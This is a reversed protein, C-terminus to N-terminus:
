KPRLVIQFRRRGYTNTDTKDINFHYNGTHLELSDKLLNDRVWIQITKPIGYFKQARIFYAGSAIATVYTKVVMGPRYPVKDGSLMFGDNSLFSFHVPPNSELYLADEGPVYADHNNHGFVLSSEHYIVSDKVIAVNFASKDAITDKPTSVPKQPNTGGKKCSVLAFAIMSFLILRKMKQTIINGM